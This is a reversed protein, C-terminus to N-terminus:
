IRFRLKRAFIFVVDFKLQASDHFFVDPLPSEVYIGNEFFNQTAHFFVHAPLKLVGSGDNVTPTFTPVRTQVEKPIKAGQPIKFAAILLLMQYGGGDVDTQAM